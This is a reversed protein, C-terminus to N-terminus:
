EEKIQDRIGSTVDDIIKDMIDKGCVVNDRYKNFVEKIIREFPVRQVNTNKLQKRKKLEM